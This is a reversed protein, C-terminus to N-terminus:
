TTYSCTRRALGQGKPYTFVAINVATIELSLKTSQLKLAKDSANWCCDVWMFELIYFAEYSSSDLTVLRRVQSQQTVALRKQEIVVNDKSFVHHIPMCFNQSHDNLWLLCPLPPYRYTYINLNQKCTGVTNSLGVYYHQQPHLTLTSCQVTVHWHCNHLISAIKYLKRLRWPLHSSNMLCFDASPEQTHPFGAQSLSRFLPRPLSPLLTTVYTQATRAWRKNPMWQQYFSLSSSLGRTYGQLLRLKLNLFDNGSPIVM